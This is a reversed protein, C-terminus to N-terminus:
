FCQLNKTKNADITIELKYKRFVACIKKKMKDAAQPTLACAVLGDDRYIGVNIGLKELESLIFLGVVECVEAGDFFGMGVDFVERGKKSYPTGDMYLMAKRALLMVEM